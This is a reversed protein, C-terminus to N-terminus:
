KRFEENQLAQTAIFHEMMSELRSRNQTVIFDEMLIKLDSKHSYQLEEFYHSEHNYLFDPHDM